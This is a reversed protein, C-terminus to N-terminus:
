LGQVRTSRGNTGLGGPNNPGNLEDTRVASGDPERDISETGHNGENILVEGSRVGVVPM